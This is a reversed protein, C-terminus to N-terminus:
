SPLEIRHTRARRTLLAAATGFSQYVLDIDTAADAISMGM